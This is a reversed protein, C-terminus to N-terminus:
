RHLLAAPSEEIAAIASAIRELRRVTPADGQKRAVEIDAAIVQSANSGHERVLRSAERDADALEKLYQRLRDLMVLDSCGAHIISMGDYLNSSPGHLGPTVHSQLIASTRRTNTTPPPTPSSFNCRRECLAADLDLKSLSAAPEIPECARESPAARAPHHKSGWQLWQDPNQVAIWCQAM